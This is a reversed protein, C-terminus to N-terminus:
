SRCGRHIRFPLLQKPLAPSAEVAEKSMVRGNAGVEPLRERKWPVIRSCGPRATASSPTATWYVTNSPPLCM